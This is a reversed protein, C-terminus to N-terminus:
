QKRSLDAGTNRDNCFFPDLGVHVQLNLDLENGQQEIYSSSAYLTYFTNPTTYIKCTCKISNM